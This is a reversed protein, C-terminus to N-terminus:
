SGERSSLKHGFRMGPNKLGSSVTLSRYNDIKEYVEWKGKSNKDVWIKQGQKIDALFETNALDDFYEFRCKVFKFLVGYPTFNNSPIITSEVIVQNLLPVAKVKYVGDLTDEFRTIAIIEGESLGHYVDTTFLLTQGAIDTEVNVVVPSLRAYRYMGWDGDDEFGIWVTDGTRIYTSTTFNYLSPKDKIAYHVDEIRAYGAVPLVYDNDAYTQSKTLFVNTIDFDQPKMSLKDDTIYNTIDFDIGPEATVFKIVQSNDIFKNEELPFELEDLSSYAGFNGIRFAWEEYFDIKGQLNNVSAKSLKELANRTGKERIFGQYFKYQAIPNTFISNLYPRPTYGVLHQAMKQQASDFNDIDLSYFDEFQNIKYDFNPLLAAIPKNGLLVWQAFDFKDSGIINNKATYYKGNFRVVDGANYNTFNK